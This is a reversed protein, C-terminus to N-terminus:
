RNIRSLYTHLRFEDAGIDPLSDRLDGDIDTTVGYNNGMNIAGSASTLHYRDVAYAPDGYVPDNDAYSGAVGDIHMINSYWLTNYLSCASGPEIKLGIGNNTVMSNWINVITPGAIHIGYTNTRSGNQLHTDNVTVHYLNIISGPLSFKIAGGEKVNTDVVAVNKMSINQANVWLAGGYSYGGSNGIFKTDEISLNLTTTEVSLGGGDNIVSNQLFSSKRISTTGTTLYIGGGGGGSNGQFIVRNIIASNSYLGGGLWGQKNIFSSDAISVVGPSKSIAFVGGGSPLSCSACNISNGNFTTQNITINHGPYDASSSFYVAGGKPDATTTEIKNNNFQTRTITTAAGQAISVAGGTLGAQNLYFTSNQITVSLGDNGNWQLIAGGHDGATNSMFYGQEVNVSNNVNYAGGNKEALNYSATGGVVTLNGAIVTAGGGHRGATNAELSSSNMNLGGYAYIGGGDINAHNGSIYSLAKVIVQGTGGQYVAGGYDAQNNMLYCHEITLTGNEIWVAGGESPSTAKGDTLMMEKITLDHGPQVTIVRQNSVSQITVTSYSAGVLTLNKNITLSEKYIGVPITSRTEMRPRM